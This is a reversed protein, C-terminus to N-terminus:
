WPKATQTTTTSGTTDKSSDGDGTTSDQSPTSQQNAKLLDEVQKKQEATLGGGKKANTGGQSAAADKSASTAKGSAKAAEKVTRKTLTASISANTDVAERVQPLLLFGLAGADAFQADTQRQGASLAEWDADDGDASTLNATLSATAQNFRSVAVLNVAAVGTVGLAAVALVALLIRVGLPARAADGKRSKRGADHAHGSM